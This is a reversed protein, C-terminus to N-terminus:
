VLGEVFAALTLKQFCSVSDVSGQELGLLTKSRGGIVKQIVKQM